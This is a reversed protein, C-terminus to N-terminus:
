LAGGNRTQGNNLIGIRGLGKLTLNPDVPVSGNFDTLVWKAFGGTACVKMGRGLEKKLEGLIERVMGRYGLRAGIRMATETNKGVVLKTKVPKIHPLLATKEALYDFMLPLGPCIIGGVYGARKKVIDFTLATGFDCVVVPTGYEAAAACANALRDPGITEPKPYSVSVGLDLEHNVWLQDCVGASKLARKWRANVGPKVSAIVAREAGREIQPADSPMHRVRSVKGNRYLGLTASTNGIDVVLFANM